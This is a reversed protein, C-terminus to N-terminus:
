GSCVSASGFGYGQVTMFARFGAATGSCWVMRSQVNTLAQCAIEIPGCPFSSWVNMFTRMQARFRPTNM